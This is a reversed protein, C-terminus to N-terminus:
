DKRNDHEVEMAMTILQDMENLYRNSLNITTGSLQKALVNKEEAMSLIRQYLDATICQQQDLIWEERNYWGYLGQLKQRYYSGSYLGIAPVSEALAFLLFHYAMGICITCEGISRKIEGPDDSQVICYDTREMEDTLMTYIDSEWASQSAFKYFRIKWGDRILPQFIGKTHEIIQGSKTGFPTLRLHVGLIKDVKTTDVLANSIVRLTLADDGAERMREQDINLGDLLNRSAGQDRLLIRQARGALFKLLVRTVPNRLPGIGQGSFFIPKGMLIGLIGTLLCARAELTGLDTLYGGGSFLIFNSDGIAALLNNRRLWYGSSNRAFLMPLCLLCLGFFVLFLEVTVIFSDPKIGFSSLRGLRSSLPLYRVLEISPSLESPRVSFTSYIRQIGKDSLLREINFLMARDGLNQSSGTNILLATKTIKKM